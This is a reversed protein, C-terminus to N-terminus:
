RELFEIRRFPETALLAGQVREGELLTDAV